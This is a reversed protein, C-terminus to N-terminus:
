KQIWISGGLESLSLLLVQKARNYEIEEFDVYSNKLSSLFSKYDIVLPKLDTLMFQKDFKSSFPKSHVKKMLYRTSSNLPYDSTDSLLSLGNDFIPAYRFSGDAKMIVCINNLHRGENRTIYDVKILDSLYKYMDLGTINSIKECVFEFLNKNKTNIKGNSLVFGYSQLIRYLSMMEEDPKLCNYSYCGEFSNDGEVIRCMFYDVFDIGEIYRLLESVLAESVREYGMSDAKIFMNDKFWKIQNGKSTSTRDFRNSEEVYIIDEQENM